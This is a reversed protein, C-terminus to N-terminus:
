SAVSTLTLSDVSWMRRFTQVPVEVDSAGEQLTCCIFEAARLSVLHGLYAQLTRPKQLQQLLKARKRRRKGEGSRM